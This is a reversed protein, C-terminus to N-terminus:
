TVQRLESALTADTSRKPLTLASLGPVTVTEAVASPTDACCFYVTAAFGTADISRPILSVVTRVPSTTCRTAVGLRALPAGIVSAFTEHVYTYVGSSVVLAGPPGAIM